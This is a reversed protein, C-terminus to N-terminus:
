RSGGEVGVREVEEEMRAALQFGAKSAPLLPFDIKIRLRLPSRTPPQSSSHHILSYLCPSPGLRSVCKHKKKAVSIRKKMWIRFSHCPPPSTFFVAASRFLPNCLICLAYISPTSYPLCGASWSAPRMFLM